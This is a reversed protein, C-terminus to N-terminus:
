SERSPESEKSPRGPKIDQSKFTDLQERTFLLLGKIVEGQLTKDRYVNSRVARVTKGLYHAAQELTYYDGFMPELPVPEKYSILELYRKLLREIGAATEPIPEYIFTLHSDVYVVHFGGIEDLAHQFAPAHWGAGEFVQLVALTPENQRRQDPTRNFRSLLNFLADAVTQTNPIDFM